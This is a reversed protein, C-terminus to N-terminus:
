LSAPAGANIWERLLALQDETLQAPHGGATMKLVITSSEADGATIVGSDMVLTYDTLNLGGMAMAGHCANCTGDFISAIDDAWTLGSAPEESEPEVPEEDPEPEPEPEVPEPEPEPEAVTGTDSNEPAGTRIWERVLALEGDSLRGSHEGDEIKVILWSSDPDGPVIAGAEAMTHYETLDLGGMAASGHCMGCNTLLIGAITDDWNLEGEPVEIAEEVPESVEEDPEEEDPEELEPLDAGYVAGARIWERVAELDSDSFSGAHGGLEMKQVLPSEDPRGALIVGTEMLLSFDTLNLGGMAISGHCSACSSFFIDDIGGVWSSPLQPLEEEEGEEPEETEEVEEGEVAEEGEEAGNDLELLGVSMSAPPPAEFHLLAGDLVWTKMALLEHFDMDGPHTGHEMLSIMSSNELDGPVIVGSDLAADYDNFNIGSVADPGHCRTCNAQFIGAIGIDWTYMPPIIGTDSFVLPSYGSVPEIPNAGSIIDDDFNLYLIFSGFIIVSILIYQPLVFRFYRLRTVEDVPPFKIGKRIDDLELPHDHEIMEESMYGTYMSTNLHKILVFYFHWVIIALVALIAEMGHAAKAAPIFDGPLMRTTIVPNWMMTGTVVMLITGWLVAFYEAKEAFTYRNEKPYIHTLGLNYGFAKLATVLDEIGIMVRSPILRMYSRYRVFGVHVIGELVMIVAGTHHLFRVNEIGGVFSIFWVSFGANSYMQTLGTLSLIIFNVALVWHEIRYSLPFRLYYNTGDITRM